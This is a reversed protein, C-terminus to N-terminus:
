QPPLAQELVHADIEDSITPPIGDPLYTNIYIHQYHNIFGEVKGVDHRQAYDWAKMYGEIKLIGFEQMEETRLHSRISCHDAFEYYMDSYQNAYEESYGAQIAKLYAEVRANAGIEGDSALIRHAYLDSFLETKGMALQKKYVASYLVADKNADRDIMIPDWQIEAMALTLYRLYIDDVGISKCHVALEQHADRPGCQAAVQCYANNFAFVEDHVAHEVVHNVWRDGHGKDKLLIIQPLENLTMRLASDKYTEGEFDVSYTYADDKFDDVFSQFTIDYMVRFCTLYKVAISKESAIACLQYKTHKEFTQSNM